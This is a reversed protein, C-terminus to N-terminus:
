WLPDQQKRNAYEPQPSEGLVHREVELPLSRNLTPLTHDDLRGESTACVSTTATRAARSWDLVLLRGCDCTFNGEHEVRYNKGCLCAFEFYSHDAM